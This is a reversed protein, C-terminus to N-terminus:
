RFGAYAAPDRISIRPMLLGARPRAFLKWNSAPDFFLNEAGCSTTATCYRGQQTSPPMDTALSPCGASIRATSPMAMTNPLLGGASM